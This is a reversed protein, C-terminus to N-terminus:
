DEYFSYITGNIEQEGEYLDMLDNYKKEDIEEYDYYDECFMIM